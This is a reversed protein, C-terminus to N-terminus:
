EKVFGEKILWDKAVIAPDGGAVDVKANLALMTENTLKPNIKAFIDGIMPYKKLTSTQVVETVNYLPFFQKDDELVQLKLGPIRGDTTFV